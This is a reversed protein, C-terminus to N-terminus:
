IRRAGLLRANRGNTWGRPTRNKPIKVRPIQSRPIPVQVRPIPIQVRPMPTIFISYDDIVNVILRSQVHQADGYLSKVCQALLDIGRCTDM